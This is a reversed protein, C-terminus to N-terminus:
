IDPEVIVSLLRISLHRRIDKLRKLLAAPARKPSLMEACREPSRLRRWIM